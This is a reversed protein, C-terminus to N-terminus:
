DIVIGDGRPVRFLSVCIPKVFGRTRSSPESARVRDLSVGVPGSGRFFGGDYRIDSMKKKQGNRGDRGATERRKAGGGRGRGAGPRGHAHRRGRALPAGTVIRVCCASSFINVIDVEMVVSLARTAALATATRTSSRGRSDHSPRARSRPARSASPIKVRSWYRARRPIARANDVITITPLPPHASHPVLPPSFPSHLPFPSSIVSSHARARTEHVYPRRVAAFFDKTTRASRASPSVAGTNLRTASEAASANVSEAVDTSGDKARVVEGAAFREPLLEAAATDGFVALAGFRTAFADLVAGATAAFFRVVVGAALFRVVM